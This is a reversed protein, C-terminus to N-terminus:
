LSELFALLDALEAAAIDGRIQHRHRAFVDALTAARGDHFFPGGQSVGRLSPPNFARLGAEDVLGVDYTRPTTYTPPAHCTGCGQRDFAERGRAVTARDASDRFRGLPPAPTLTRLYAVLDDAQDDSLKPGRMTTAVSQRMQDRLDKVGGNWGWPGTDAVGLLSPVRKPTGYTGDGLTDALRGNSHGDTHCSHCSMWGDHSLRADHFLLEGRDAAKLEGAPGLALEATVRGAELDVISVSDTHTNAVFARKGDPNVAVATPRRGVTIRRWEDGPKGVAVEGAGSLAVVVRGGGVAVGAPDGGGHGVDGLPHLRSDALLDAKRDLVAALSVERLDNTVFNGWHIDDRGSTALRNLGQHSVLIAARDATLALGRLNHGPLTRASEVAGRAVDVVVLGGGFADAVVVRGDGMPLQMRPAFPLSVTSGVRPEAPASLDIVTLRRPWFAVVSARRGGVAVGVPSPGVALRRAVKLGAGDRDLVVLEGAEEDVALLHNGDATAVLDAVTRGVPIEAEVRGAATDIVAVSGDRNGVFLWRGADALALAVPRRLGSRTRESPPRGPTLGALVAGVCAACLLTRM